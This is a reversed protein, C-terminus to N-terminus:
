TVEVNMGFASRFYVSNFYLKRSSTSMYKHELRCQTNEVIESPMGAIYTWAFQDKTSSEAWGTGSSIHEQDCDLHSSRKKQLLTDKVSVLARVLM